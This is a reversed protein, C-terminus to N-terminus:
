GYSVRPDAMSYSLDVLLNVLLVLTGVFLVGGQLTPFDRNLAAGLLMQGLGPLNFVIETAFAGALLATFILGLGTLVPLLGSLLAHRVLITRAPVGKARATRIYDSSMTTRLSSRVIRALPGTQILGIALAPLTLHYLWAQLSEGMPVYGQVPFWPLTVAFALMLLLGLLFEPVAFGFSALVTVIGDAPGRRSAGAVVGFALGLVLAVAFGALTLSLTVSFRDLVAATVEDNLFYSRGFDGQVANALWRLYQEHLPRDLGLQAEVREIQEPTAQVGLMVAAPSGTAMHLLGFSVLSLVLWVPIMQIFRQAVYRLM